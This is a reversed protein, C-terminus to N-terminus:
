FVNLYSMACISIPVEAGSNYWIHHTNAYLLATFFTIHSIYIRLLLVHYSQNPYTIM